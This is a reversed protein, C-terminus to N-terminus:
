EDTRVRWLCADCCCMVCLMSYMDKIIFDATGDKQILMDKSESDSKEKSVIQKESGDQSGCGAFLLIIFALVPLIWKRRSDDKNKMGLLEMEGLYMKKFKNYFFRPRM